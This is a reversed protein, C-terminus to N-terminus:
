SGAIGTVKPICGVFSTWMYVLLCTYPHEYCQLECYSIVLIDMILIIYM